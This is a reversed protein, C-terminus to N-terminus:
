FKHTKNTNERIVECLKDVVDEDIEDNTLSLLVRRKNESVNSLDVKYNDISDYIAKKLVAKDDANLDYASCILEYFGDPVNRKNNEIASLYAASIKLKAAMTRLSDGTKIRLMKLCKGIETVMKEESGVIFIYEYEILIGCVGGRKDVTNFVIKVNKNVIKIKKEGDEESYLFIM